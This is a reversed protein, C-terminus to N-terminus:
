GQSQFLWGRGRRGTSTEARLRLQEGVKSRWARSGSCPARPEPPGGKRRLQRGNEAWEPATDSHLHFAHRQSEDRGLARYAQPSGAWPQLPLGPQAATAGVVSPGSDTAGSLGQPGTQPPPHTSIM